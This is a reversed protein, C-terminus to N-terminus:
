TLVIAGKWRVTRRPDASLTSELPTKSWVVAVVAAWNVIPRNMLKAMVPIVM